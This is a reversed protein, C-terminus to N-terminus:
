ASLPQGTEVLTKLGSLVLMWGEGAVSAATKPSRELHDHVLTLRCGHEGQPDITWSVRSEPEGALEPDYTSRWGHVLRRPPECEIVPEEGWLEGDPGHVRRRGDAIEVRVGYFYQQVLDPNTIAEWVQEPTARIFLPYVQETAPEATTTMPDGELRSKLDSLAAVRPETYKDIWRDHILRIPVPNLYHLKERGSRRTVVLGAEELVRLHKMVGFRTMRLESELETLSRGAREFLRDLLHRRTPDALAKFVRDEDPGDDDTSRSGSPM